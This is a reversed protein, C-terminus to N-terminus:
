IDYDESLRLDAIVVILPNSTFISFFTIVVVQRV